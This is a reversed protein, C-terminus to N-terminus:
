AAGGKYRIERTNNSHDTVAICIVGQLSLMASDTASDCRSLLWGIAHPYCCFRVRAAPETTKDTLILPLMGENSCSAYQCLYENTM